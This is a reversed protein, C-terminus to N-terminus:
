PEGGPKAATTRRWDRFDNCTPCGIGMAEVGAGCNSCPLDVSDGKARAEMMGRLRRVEGILALSHSVHLFNELRAREELADLGAGSLDTPANM